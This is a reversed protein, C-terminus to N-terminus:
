FFDNDETALLYDNTGYGEGLFSFDFAFFLKLFSLINKVGGIIV